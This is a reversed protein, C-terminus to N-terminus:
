RHKFFREFIGNVYLLPLTSLEISNKNSRPIKDGALMERPEESSSTLM